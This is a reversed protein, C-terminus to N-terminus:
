RPGIDACKEPCLSKLVSPLRHHHSPIYVCLLKDMTTRLTSNYRTSLIRYLLPIYLHAYWRAEVLYLLVSLVVM